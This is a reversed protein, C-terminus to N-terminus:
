TDSSVGLDDIFNGSLPIEHTNSHEYFKLLVPVVAEQGFTKVAHIFLGTYITALEDHPLQNIIIEPVGITKLVVPRESSPKSSIEELIFQRVYEGTQNGYPNDFLNFAKKLQNHNLFLHEKTM